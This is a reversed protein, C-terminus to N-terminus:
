SHPKVWILLGSRHGPTGGGNSCTRVAPTLGTCCWQLRERKGGSSHIFAPLLQQKFARQPSPHSCLFMLCLVARVSLSYSRKAPKQKNVQIGQFFPRAALWGQAECPRQSRQPLMHVAQQSRAWSCSDLLGEASTCFWCCADFAACWSEASQLLRGAGAQRPTVTVTFGLCTIHRLVDIHQVFM